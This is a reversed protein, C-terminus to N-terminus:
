NRARVDPEQGNRSQQGAIKIQPDRSGHHGAIKLLASADSSTRPECPNGVAGVERNFSAETSINLSSRTGFVREWFPRFMALKQGLHQLARQLPVSLLPALMVLVRSPIRRNEQKAAKTIPNISV